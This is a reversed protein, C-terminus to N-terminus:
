RGPYVSGGHHHRFRRLQIHGASAPETGARRIDAPLSAVQRQAAFLDIRRRREPQRVSGSDVQPDTGHDAPRRLLKGECDGFPLRGRIEEEPVFVLRHTDTLKKNDIGTSCFKM